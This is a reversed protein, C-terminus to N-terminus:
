KIDDQCTNAGGVDTTVLQMRISVYFDISTVQQSYIPVPSWALGDSMSHAKALKGRTRM